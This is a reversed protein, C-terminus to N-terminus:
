PSYITGGKFIGYNRRHREMILERVESKYSGWIDDNKDIMIRYINEIQRNVNELKTEINNEQTLNFVQLRLLHTVSPNAYLEEEFFTLRASFSTFNRNKIYDGVISAYKQLVDYKPVYSELDLHLNRLMTDMEKFKYKMEQTLNGLHKFRIDDLAKLKKPIYGLVDTNNTRRYENLGEMIALKVDMDEYKGEMKENKVIIDIVIDMVESTHDHDVVDFNFRPLILVLILLITILHRYEKM